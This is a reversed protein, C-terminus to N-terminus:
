RTTIKNLARTYIPM